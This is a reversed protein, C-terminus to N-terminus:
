APRLHPPTAARVETVRDALGPWLREAMPAADSPEAPFRTVLWLEVRAVSTYVVVSAGLRFASAEDILSQMTDEPGWFVASSGLDRLARHLGDHPGSECLECLSIAM